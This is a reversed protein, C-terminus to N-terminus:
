CATIRVTLSRVKYVPGFTLRFRNGTGIDLTACYSALPTNPFSFVLSIQVFTWEDSLEARSLLFPERLDERYEMSEFPTILQIYVSVRSRPSIGEIYRYTKDGLGLRVISFVRLCNDWGPM